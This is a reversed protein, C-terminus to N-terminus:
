NSIAQKQKRARLGDRMLVRALTSTPIYNLASQRLLEGYLDDDNKTFSIHLTRQKM